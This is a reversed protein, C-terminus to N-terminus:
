LTDGALPHCFGTAVEQHQNSIIKHLSVDKGIGIRDGSLSGADDCRLDPCTM